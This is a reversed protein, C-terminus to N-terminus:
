EEFAMLVAQSMRIMINLPRLSRPFDEAHWISPSRVPHLVSESNDVHASQCVCHM